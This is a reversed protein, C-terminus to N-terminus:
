KENNSIMNKRIRTMHGINVLYNDQIKKNDYYSIIM